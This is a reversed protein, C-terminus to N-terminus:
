ALAHRERLLDLVEDHPLGRVVRGDRGTVDPAAWLANLVAEETAEVAAAFLEDVEEREVGTAEPLTSFAIFIEGSGHHAVSGMRALGLGGRRAVRELEASPLPADTALVVICSGAPKPPEDSPRALLRGVPVGAVRLQRATGFNALV